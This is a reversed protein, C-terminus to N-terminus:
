QISRDPLRALKVTINMTVFLSGGPCPFIHSIQNKVRFVHVDPGFSAMSSPVHQPRTQDKWIEVEHVISTLPAGKGWTIAWVGRLLRPASNAPVQLSVFNIQWPPNKELNACSTYILFGLAWFRSNLPNQSFRTKRVIGWSFIVKWNDYTTESAM